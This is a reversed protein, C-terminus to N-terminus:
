CCADADGEEASEDRAEEGDNSTGPPTPLPPAVLSATPPAPKSPPLLMPTASSGALALRARARRESLVVLRPESCDPLDVVSLATARFFLFPLLSLSLILRLAAAMAAAAATFPPEGDVGAGAEVESGGAAGCEEWWCSCCCCCCCRGMANLAM